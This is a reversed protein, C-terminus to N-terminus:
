MQDVVAAPILRIACGGKSKNTSSSKSKLLSSDLEFEKTLDLDFGFEDKSPKTQKKIGCSQIRFM